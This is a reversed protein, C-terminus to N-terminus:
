RGGKGVNLIDSSLFALNVTGSVSIQGFRRSLGGGKLGFLAILNEAWKM